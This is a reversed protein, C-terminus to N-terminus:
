GTSNDFYIGYYNDYINNSIITPNSDTYIGYKENAHIESNTITVNDSYVLVGGYTAESGVFSIDCSDISANGEIKFDYYYGASENIVSMKTGSMFLEGCVGSSDNKQVHFIFNGESPHFFLIECNLLSLNGGPQIIIDGYIKLVENERVVRDGPEIYWDNYTFGDDPFGVESFYKGNKVLYWYCM